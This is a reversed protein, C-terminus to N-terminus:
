AGRQPDELESFRQSLQSLAQAKLHSLRSKHVGLRAAVEPGDLEDLFLWRLLDQRRQPLSALATRLLECQEQRSMDDEASDAESAYAISAGATVDEFFDLLRDWRDGADHERRAALSSAGVRKALHLAKAGNQIAGRVRHEAYTNLEVGRDADFRALAESLGQNGYSHLEQEASEPLNWKLRAKTAYVEIMRRFRKAVADASMDDSAREASAPPHEM